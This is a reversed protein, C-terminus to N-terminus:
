TGSGPWRGRGPRGPRRRAPTTADATLFRELEELGARVYRREDRRKRWCRYRCPAVLWIAAAIAILGAVAGASMVLVDFARGYASLAQL